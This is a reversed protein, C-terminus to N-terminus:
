SRRIRKGASGRNVHWVGASLGRALGLGFWGSTSLRSPGSMLRGIGDELWGCSLKWDNSQTQRNPCIEAISSQGKLWM